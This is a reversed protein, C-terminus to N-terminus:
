VITGKGFPGIVLNGIVATHSGDFSNIDNMDSVALDCRYVGIPFCREKLLTLLLVRLTEKIESQRVPGLLFEYFGELAFRLPNFM